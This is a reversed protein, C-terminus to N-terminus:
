LVEWESVDGDPANHDDLIQQTEALTAKMRAILESCEDMRENHEIEIEAFTKM